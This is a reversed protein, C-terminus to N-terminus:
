LAQEHHARHRPDQLARAHAGARHLRGGQRGPRHARQSATYVEPDGPLDFNIVHTLDDVDLGRSAVDTAVLIQVQRRRFARMVRDRQDQSLDGHLTPMTATAALRGAVDQTEIRTRCFVIGYFGPRADIIGSSRPTAIAPM